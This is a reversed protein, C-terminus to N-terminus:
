RKTFIKRIVIFPLGITYKLINKCLWWMANLLRILINGFIWGGVSTSQTYYTGKGVKKVTRIKSSYAM